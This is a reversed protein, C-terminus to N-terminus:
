KLLKQWYMMPPTCNDFGLARYTTQAHLNDTRVELTIKCCELECALEHIFQLLKKGIGQHRYDSLVVIDHINIYPQGYFTSFNVFCTSMAICQQTLTHYGLICFCAPHSSLGQIVNEESHPSHPLTDGMPDSMYHKLLTLYDHSHQQNNFDCLTFNIM